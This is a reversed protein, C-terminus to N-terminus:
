EDLVDSVNDVPAYCSRENRWTDLWLDATEVDLVRRKIGIVLLGISGTVDVDHGRAVTRATADDTALTGGSEIAARVSDAEGPDLRERFQGRDAGGLDDVLELDTGVVELAEELFEHGFRRGEELEEKVAPVVAPQQLLDVLWDVANTSAFNSLVTTDIVYPGESVM